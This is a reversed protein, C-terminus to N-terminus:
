QLEVGQLGISNGSDTRLIAMKAEVRHENLAPGWTEDPRSLLRLREMLTHRPHMRALKIVAVLPIMAVSTLSILWGVGTAWLPFEYDGYQIPKHDIWTFLLLATVITPSVVKWAWKWWSYHFPYHGIMTRINDLLRDAGYIHAVVLVETMGVILASFTGAYNDMLTLIYLGGSTCMPLGCFFMFLCCGLLVWTQKARLRDPALDVVTSVVTEMMTFQSGVGLTLLMAFFCISWLPAVPLRSVAEPYVIFALGPGQAAVDEVKVGLEHAMFGVIGFIVFGAFFSTLCNGCSIIIADRFHNNHFKNYASLAILGGWSHGLSFFIQIAADAWVKVHALKEWRPTIYFYIGEMYGPLTAARALLCVLILYPFIATFYVAKGYTKVGKVMALFVITWASLLCLALPWRFAGLDDIGDTIQLMYNHFFEDAPMRHTGISGSTNWLRQGGSQVCGETDNAGDGATCPEPQFVHCGETNWWNDCGDWPLSSTLSSYVYFITWALIMNYYIGITLSIVFMAYGIGQFLPSVSWIGIPGQSTFQGMTLEFFFLPVGTCFLMIVYPILFAGGGNQYCLYPFRWINGLGVAYSLCSLLFELQSGWTGRRSSDAQEEDDDAPPAAPPAAVSTRHPTSAPDPPVAAAPDFGKAPPAAGSPAGVAESYSPPALSAM